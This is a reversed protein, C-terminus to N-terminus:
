GRNGGNNVSADSVELLKVAESAGVLLGGITGVQARLEPTTHVRVAIGRATEADVGAIQAGVSVDGSRARMAGIEPTDLMASIVQAQVRSREADFSM